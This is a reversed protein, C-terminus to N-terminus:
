IINFILFHFFDDCAYFSDFLGIIFPSVGEVLCLHISKILFDDLLSLRKL